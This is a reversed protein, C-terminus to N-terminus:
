STLVNELTNMPANTLSLEERKREFGTQERQVQLFILLCGNTNM